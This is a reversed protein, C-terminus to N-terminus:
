KCIREANSEMEDHWLVDRDPLEDIEEVTLPSNYYFACEASPATTTCGAIFIAVATLVVVLAVCQYAKM